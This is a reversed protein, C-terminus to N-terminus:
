PHWVRLFPIKNEKIEIWNLQYFNIISFWSRGVHLWPIRHNIFTKEPRAAHHDVFNGIRQTLGAARCSIMLKLVSDDDCILLSNLQIQNISQNILFTSELLLRKIQRNCSIFVFGTQPEFHSGSFPIVDGNLLSASPVYIGTSQRCWNNSIIRIIITKKM